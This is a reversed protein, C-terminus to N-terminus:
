TTSDKVLGQLTDNQNRICSLYTLGDVACNSFKGGKFKISCDAFIKGYYIDKSYQQSLTCQNIKHDCTAKPDGNAKICTQIAEYNASRVVELALQDCLLAQESIEMQNIIKNLDGDCGQLFLLSIPLYIFKLSPM